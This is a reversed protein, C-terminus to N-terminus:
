ILREKEPFLFPNKTQSFTSLIKYISKCYITRMKFHLLARNGETYRHM